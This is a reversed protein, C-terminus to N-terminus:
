PADDTPDLPEQSVRWVVTAAGGLMTQLPNEAAREAGYVQIVSRRLEEFIAQRAPDDETV